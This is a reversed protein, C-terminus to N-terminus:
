RELGLLAFAEAVADQAMVSRQQATVSRMRKGAERVAERTAERALHDLSADLAFTLRRILDATKADM